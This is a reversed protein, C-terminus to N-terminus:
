IRIELISEAFSDGVDVIRSRDPDVLGWPLDDAMTVLTLVM